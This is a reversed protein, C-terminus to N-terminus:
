YFISNKQFINRELVNIVWVRKCTFHKRSFVPPSAHVYVCVCVGPYHHYMFTHAAFCPTISSAPLTSSLSLSLLM